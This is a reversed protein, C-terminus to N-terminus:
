GLETIARNRFHTDEFVQATYTPLDQRRVEPKVLGETDVAEGGTNPNKSLSTGGRQWSAQRVVGQQPLTLCERGMGAKPAAVM